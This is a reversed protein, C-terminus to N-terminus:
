RSHVPRGRGRHTQAPEPEVEGEIRRRL